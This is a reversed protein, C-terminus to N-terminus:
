SMISPRLRYSISRLHPTVGGKTYPTTGNTCGRFRPNCDAPSNGDFISYILHMQDVPSYAYLTNHTETGIAVGAREFPGYPGSTSVAHAAFSGRVWTGMGCNAALESVFLHYKGSAADFAPPGGGWSSSNPTATAGKGWMVIPTPDLDLEGCTSGTWGVDCVCSGQIFDGNLQCKMSSPTVYLWVSCLLSAPM